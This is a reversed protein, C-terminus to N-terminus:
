MSHQHGSYHPDISPEDCIRDLSSPAIGMMRFYALDQPTYETKPNKLCNEMAIERVAASTSLGEQETKRLLEAEIERFMVAENDTRDTFDNTEPEDAGRKKSAGYNLWGWNNSKCCGSKLSLLQALADTGYRYYMGMWGPKGEEGCTWLDKIKPWKSEPIFSASGSGMKYPVITDATVSVPYKDKGVMYSVQTGGPTPNIETYQEPGLADGSIGEYDNCDAWLHFLRDVNGHHMMFLPEDPSSQTKMSFGLFLHTCSHGAGHVWPLMSSFYKNGCVQTMIQSQDLRMVTPDLLRKLGTDYCKAASSQWATADGSVQSLIPFTDQTFMGSKVYYCNAPDTVPDGFCKDCKIPGTQDWISSTHLIPIVTDRTNSDYDCEWAWYPLAAYECCKDQPIPPNLTSGYKFCVWTLASEYMWLFGKHAAIFASTYHWIANGSSKHINPFCNYLSSSSTSGTTWQGNVKKAQWVLNVFAKKQDSDLSAWSRRIRPGTCKPFNANEENGDIFWNDSVACVVAIFVL